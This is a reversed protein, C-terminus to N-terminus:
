GLKYRVVEYQNSSNVRAQSSSLIEGHRSDGGHYGRSVMTQLLDSEYSSCGGGRDREREGRVRYRGVATSVMGPTGELLAHSRHLFLCRFTTESRGEHSDVRCFRSRASRNLTVLGTRPTLAADIGPHFARSINLCAFKYVLTGRDPPSIGRIPIVGLRIADSRM